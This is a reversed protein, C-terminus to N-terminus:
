NKRLESIISIKSVLRLPFLVGAVCVAIALIVVLVNFGMDFRAPLYTDYYISPLTIIKYKYILYCLTSGLAGGIVAGITGKVMAVYMVIRKLENTSLGMSSLIAFDPRKSEVMMVLSVTISFSAVLIIFFLTVLMAIRELKLSYFLKQNRDEWTQVKLGKFASLQKKINEAMPGTKANDVCLVALGTPVGKLPTFYNMSDELEFYAYKLDRAYTGTRVFDMVKFKRIRPALSSSVAEWGSVVEVEDMRTMQNVYGLQEGLATQRHELNPVMLSGMMEKSISFAVAGITFGNFYLIVENEVFPSVMAEGSKIEDMSNLKQYVEAWNSMASPSEQDYLYIHPQHGLIRKVLQDQFGYMVSVVTIISFVGLLVGTVGFISVVSSREGGFGLLRRSIFRKVGM